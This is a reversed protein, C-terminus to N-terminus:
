MLKCFFFHYFNYISGKMIYLKFFLAIFSHCTNYQINLFAKKCEHNMECINGSLQYIEDMKKKKILFTINKDETQREDM